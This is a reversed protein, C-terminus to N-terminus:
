YDFFPSPFSITWWKGYVENLVNIHEKTAGENEIDDLFQMFDNRTKYSFIKTKYNVFKNLPSERLYGAFQSDILMADCYPMLSSIM